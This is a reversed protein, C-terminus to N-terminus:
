EDREYRWRTDMSLRHRPGVAHVDGSGYGADGHYMAIMTDGVFDFRTEFHEVPGALAAEVVSRASDFRLMQTLTIFTPPTLGLVGEDRRTIVDAPRQWTFERIESDDITVESDASGLDAVYFATTFRKPAQQPATWHSWRVLGAPDLALGTEELTERRAARVSALERVSMANQTPGVRESGPSEHDGEDIRGGPFVWMGGAFSLKGDRRLMLTEVGGPGDRLVIVTAAPIAGEVWFDDLRQRGADPRGPGVGSTRSDPDPISM